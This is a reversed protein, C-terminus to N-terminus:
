SENSRGKVEPVATTEVRLLREKEAIVRRAYRREHDQSWGAYRQLGARLSGAQRLSDKLIRTGVLVNVRPDFLAAEGGLEALKDRHFRPVVQMLGRAGAGSRATPNFSSEVAMVALVLLPDVDFAEAAAYAEDVLVRAQEPDVRYREALYGALLTRRLAPVSTAEVALVEGKGPPDPTAGASFLVGCALAFAGLPQCLANTWTMHMDGALQM